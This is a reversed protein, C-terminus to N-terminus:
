RPAPRSRGRCAGHACSVARGSRRGRPPLRAGTRHACRRARAARSGEALGGCCREIGHPRDHLQLRLARSLSARAPVVQAVEARADRARRVAGRGAVMGRVAQRHSLRAGGCPRTAGAHDARTRDARCRSRSLRRSRAAPLARGFVDSRDLFHLTERGARRLDCRCRRAHRRFGRAHPRIGHRGGPRHRQLAAFVRRARSQRDSLRRPAFQRPADAM